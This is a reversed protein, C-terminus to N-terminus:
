KFNYYNVRISLDNPSPITQKHIQKNTYMSDCFEATTCKGNNPTSWNKKNNTVQEYSGVPTNPYMKSNTEYSNRSLTQPQKTPFDGVLITNDQSEPFNSPELRNVFSETYGCFVYYLGLCALVILIATLLKM